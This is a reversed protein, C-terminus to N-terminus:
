IKNIPLDIALNDIWAKLKSISPQKLLNENAGCFPSSQKTAGFPVASNKMVWGFIM